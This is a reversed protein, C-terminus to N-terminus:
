SSFPESLRVYDTVRGRGDPGGPVSAGPFPDPVATYAPPACDPPGSSPKPPPDGMLVGPYVVYGDRVRGHEQAAGDQGPAGQQPPAGVYGGGPQSLSPPEFLFRPTDSPSGSPCLIYPGSFSFCGQQPPCPPGLTASKPDKEWCPGPSNGNALEQTDGGGDPSPLCVKELVQVRCIITKEAEKQLSLPDKQQSLSDKQLSLPDKQRSLRNSYSKKMIEELVKSRIPSPVSVKWLVLRRRCAPLTFCLIIFIIAVLVAICIYVFTSISWPAPHSTWEMRESWESPPGMFSDEGEKPVILARVQAAYHTSPVLSGETIFYSRVGEACDVYEVSEPKETSWYRLQYSLAWRKNETPTWKLVWDRHRETVQGPDPPSPQINRHSRIEKSNYTPLLELELPQEPDWVSFSCSFRLVSDAPGRAGPPGSVSCREAPSTHNLRYSLRYTVLEALERQVEWSCLMEQRDFVCQLLADQSKWAVAASWESWPGTGDRVRVRAEYDCGPELSEAEIKLGRESVVVETRAQSSRPRYTVQYNLSPHPRSHPTSPPAQWELLVAGGKVAQQM